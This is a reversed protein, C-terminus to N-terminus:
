FTMVLIVSGTIVSNDLIIVSLLCDWRLWLAWLIYYCCFMHCVTHCGGTQWRLLSRGTPAFLFFTFFILIMAEVICALTLLLTM